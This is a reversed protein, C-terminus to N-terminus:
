MESPLKVGKPKRGTIDTTEAAASPRVFPLEPGHGNAGPPAPSLRNIIREMTPTPDRSILVGGMQKVLEVIPTSNALIGKSVEATCNAAKVAVDVAEKCSERVTTLLEKTPEQTRRVLFYTWWCALAIVVVAFIAWSVPVM